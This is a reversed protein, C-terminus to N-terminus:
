RDGPFTDDDAPLEDDPGEGVFDDDTAGENPTDEATEDQPEGDIAGNLYSPEYDKRQPAAPATVDKMERSQEFAYDADVRNIIKELDSSVPLRKSLRRVVTKKAMEEWFDVWPGYGSTKSTAKVRNVDVVSMYEADRAGDSLIAVAYVGRIDGPNDINPEHEIIPEFGKIIRFHDNKNVIHAALTSIEGSNRARKYIGTIMPMYQVKKIWKKQQGKPAVNTNFIVLAAEKGNPILGDQACEVCSNMLSARDANILDNNKSVATLVTRQFKEVSIHAPLAMKLQQASGESMIQKRLENIPALQNM